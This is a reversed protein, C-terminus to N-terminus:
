ALPISEPGDLSFLIWPVVRSHAAGKLNPDFLRKRLSVVIGPHETEFVILCILTDHQFDMFVPLVQLRPGDLSVENSRGRRCIVISRDDSEKSEISGCRILLYDGRILSIRAGSECVYGSEFLHHRVIPLGGVPRAALLQNVKQGGRRRPRCTSEITKRKVGVGTVLPRALSPVF